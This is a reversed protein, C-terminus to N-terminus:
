CPPIQFLYYLNVLGETGATWWITGATAGDNDDAFADLGLADEENVDSVIVFVYGTFGLDIFLFDPAITGIPVVLGPANLPRHIYPGEWQNREGGNYNSGCIDQDGNVLPQLLQDLGTPYEGIDNEFTTVAAEIDQLATLGADRRARDIAAVLPPTLSVALITVVAVWM